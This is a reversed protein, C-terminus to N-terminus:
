MFSSLIKSAELRLKHDLKIPQNSNDRCFRILRLALGSTATDTDLFGGAHMWTKNQTHLHPWQNGFGNRRVQMCALLKKIEHQQAFFYPLSSMM